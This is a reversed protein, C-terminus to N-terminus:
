REGSVILRCQSLDIGNVKDAKDGRLTLIGVEDQSSACCANRLIAAVCAGAAM